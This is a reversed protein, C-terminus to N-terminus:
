AGFCVGCGFSASGCGQCKDRCNSTVRGERAAEWEKILFKKSVGADIHDWPFVETIDRERETYFKYDIGNDAFAKYYREMSFFETWADFIAGAKYADYIVKSLRRDGRAFVGELVSIDQDHYSFKLRKKNLQQNFTDKVHRARAVYEDRPLMPAWQFPTFPKPVFYSASATIQLSGVREEKPVTEF